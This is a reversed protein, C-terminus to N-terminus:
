VERRKKIMCDDHRGTWTKAGGGPDLTISQQAAGPLLVECAAAKIPFLPHPKITGNCVDNCAEIYLFYLKM